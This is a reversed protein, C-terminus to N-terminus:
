ELTNLLRKAVSPNTLPNKIFKCIMSSGMAHIVVVPNALANIM